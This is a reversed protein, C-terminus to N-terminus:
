RHRRALGRRVQAMFEAEFCRLGLLPIRLTVDDQLAVENQRLSDQVPALGRWHGSGDIEIHLGADDFYVDLYANGTPLRRLVQRSPRPLGHKRCLRAFDLEGLSHAGDCVDGIVQGLFRGRPSREIQAWRALLDDTRVVRQQVAMALITAAQRDSRAWQAARVTAVAAHTRPIGSQRVPGLTKPRHLRVGPLRHAGNRFPVSVDVHDHSWGTLGYALLASTGDLVAGPGSEWVAWWLRATGSPEATAIGITHRGLSFWRGAEVETRIAPRSVGAAQLLALTAVGGHRFALSRAVATRTKREARRRASFRPRPPQPM